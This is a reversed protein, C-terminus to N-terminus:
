LARIRVLHKLVCLGKPAAAVLADEINVVHNAVVCIRGTGVFGLQFPPKPLILNEFKVRALRQFRIRKFKLPNALLRRPRTQSVFRRRAFLTFKVLAKIALACIKHALKIHPAFLTFKVPATFRSTRLVFM